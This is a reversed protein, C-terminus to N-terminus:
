GDVKNKSCTQIDWFTVEIMTNCDGNTKTTRLPSGWWDWKVGAEEFPQVVICDDLMQM